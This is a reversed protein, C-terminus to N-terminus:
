SLVMSGQSSAQNSCLCNCSPNDCPVMKGVEGKRCYCFIGTLESPHCTNEKETGCLLHPLIVQVFFKQLKISIDVFFGPDQM